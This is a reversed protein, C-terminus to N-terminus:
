SRMRGRPGRTLGDVIELLEPLSEIVADPEPGPAATTQEVDANRRLVAKLGAGKAGSIDDYRRDGVFLARRSDEVGVADLVAAFAEPHPKSYELDSTYIRADIFELLGDRELFREHWARPWLTNSLLGIKLGRSRIERLVAPADDDHEVLPTWSDLHHTAAEELVAEAVDIGLARTAALLVDALRASRHTREIDAWCDREVQVLREVIEDERARDIHRAALRWLDALDVTVWKSLTGGWDFVVAELM